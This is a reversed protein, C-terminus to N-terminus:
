RREKRPLLLLMQEAWAKLDAPTLHFFNGQGSRRWDGREDLLVQAPLKRQFEQGDPKVDGFQLEGGPGLLTGVFPRGRLQLYAALALSPLWPQSESERRAWRYSRLRGDPDSDLYLLGSSLSLNPPLRTTDKFTRGLVIDEQGSQMQEWFPEFDAKEGRLLLLDLVIVQAGQDRLQAVIQSLGAYEQRTSAWGTLDQQGVDLHAIRPSVAPAYPSRLRLFGDFGWRDLPSLPGALAFWLVISGLWAARWPWVRIM